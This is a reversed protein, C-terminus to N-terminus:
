GPILAAVVTGHGPTSTVTVAGGASEVVDCMMRMGLHGARSPPGDAGIEFGRGDDRVSVSLMGRHEDVAIWVHGADAHRAVNRTAEQAVRFVVKLQEIDATMAPPCDVHVSIGRSRLRDAIGELSKALSMGGLDPPYIETFLTRLSEVSGNIASVLQDVEARADPPVRSGLAGLSMSVGALDQVAGDHLDHAIAQRERVSAEEASRLMRVRDARAQRALRVALPIQVLQLLVLPVLVAPLFQWWIAHAADEVLAMPQYTELLLPTGDFARVPYYVELLNGQERELFNEDASLDSIEARPVGSRFADIADDSLPLDMGIIEPEDAHVVVGDLTWIRYHVFVSADLSRALEGLAERARPDGALLEPTLNPEFVTTALLSTRDIADRVSEDTGARRSAFVSAVGLAVLAIVGAVVFRVVLAGTGADGSREMIPAIRRGRIVRTIGHTRSGSHTRQTDILTM